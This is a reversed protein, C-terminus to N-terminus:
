FHIKPIKLLGQFIFSYLGLMCMIGVLLLLVKRNIARINHGLCIAFMPIVPFLYRGQPQFDVVWSHHLSALILMVSVGCVAGTISAGLLGGRTFSSILIFVLLASGFWKVILYYQQPSIITFYGFVGFSSQFTKIDWHYKPILEGFAVGRDKVSLARARDEPPTSKKYEYHAYKEQLEVIKGGKNSGNISYDAAMRVGLFSLGLITILILRKLADKKEWYYEETFFMKVGLVLYFLGVFPYYNMKLIFITGLFVPLVVLGALRLLAGGGKLYRHLLSNPDILQWSVLFSIFLAFADSGCYSFVYWIQSSVLYPLAAIRAYLNGTTLFFIVGFLAVNFFRYAFNEPMDFFQLFKYAKGSFFYYVEGSNLRSIGYVSYTDQISPDDVVPPFWHDAYYHTAAIHVYEDPHVNQKSVGAMTFVLLWVGFLLVPVIVFNQTLPDLAYVIGCTLIAIVLLRIFLWFKDIGLSRASVLLELNPDTGNSKIWLGKEDVRTTEIQQLPILNSFSLQDDLIISEYGEQRIALSKLTVEGITCHTDVRLRGVKSINTLNFSYTDRGPHVKVHAVRRESYGEGAAAWYISFQGSQKVSMELDVVATNVVFQYYATCAVVCALLVLLIKQGGGGEAEKGVTSDIAIDM